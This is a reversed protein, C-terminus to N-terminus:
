GRTEYGKSLNSRKREQKMSGMSVCAAMDDDDDKRMMMQMRKQKSDKSLNKKLKKNAKGKKGKKTNQPANLSDDSLNTRLDKQQQDDSSNWGPISNMRYIKKSSKKKGSKKGSKSTAGDQPMDFESHSTFKKRKSGGIGM